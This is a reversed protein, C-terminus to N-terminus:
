AAGALRQGVPLTRRTALPVFAQTAALANRCRGVLTEGAVAWRVRLRPRGAASRRFFPLATALTTGGASVRETRPANGASSLSMTAARREARAPEEVARSCATVTVRPLMEGTVTLASPEALTEPLMEALRSPGPFTTASTPMVALVVPASPTSTLTVKSPASPARELRPKAM